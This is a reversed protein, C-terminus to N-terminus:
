SECIPQVARRALRTLPSKPALARALHAIRVRKTNTANPVRAAAAAAQPWFDSVWVDPVPAAAPGFAAVATDSM